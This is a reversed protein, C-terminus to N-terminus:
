DWGLDLQGDYLDFELSLKLNNDTYFRFFPYDNTLNWGYAIDLHNREIWQSVRYSDVFRDAPNNGKNRTTFGEEFYLRSRIDDVDDISEKRSYWTTMDMIYMMTRFIGQRHLLELKVEGKDMWGMYMPTKGPGELVFRLKYHAKENEIVFFGIGCYLKEESDLADELVQNFLRVTQKFDNHRLVAVASDIQNWEYNSFCEGLKFLAYNGFFRFSKLPM